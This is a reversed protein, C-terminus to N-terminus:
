KVWDIIRDEVSRVMPLGTPYNRLWEIDAAKNRYGLSVFLTPAIHKPLGLLERVAEKDFLGVMCSSIGFAMAALCVNQAAIAIDMLSLVDVLGKPSSEPGKEFLEKVAPSTPTWNEAAVKEKTKDRCFIMLVPAEGYIGPSVTKIRRILEERQAIVMKWGYVRHGSPAWIAAEVLKKVKDESIAEGTYFRVSRRKRIADSVEM